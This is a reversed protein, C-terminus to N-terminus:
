MMWHVNQLKRDHCLFYNRSYIIEPFWKWFSFQRYPFLSTTHDLDTKCLLSHERLVLKGWFTSTSSGYIKTSCDLRNFSTLSIVILNTGLSCCCPHCSKEEEGSIDRPTIKSISTWNSKYNLLYKNLLYCTINVTKHISMSTAISFLCMILLHLLNYYDSECFYICLSIPM